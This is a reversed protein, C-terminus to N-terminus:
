STGKYHSQNGGPLNSRFATYDPWQIQEKIQDVTEFFEYPYLTKVEECSYMKALKSLSGGGLINRADVFAINKYCVCFYAAGKKITSLKATRVNKVIYPM